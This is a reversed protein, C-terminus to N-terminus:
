IFVFDQFILFLFIASNDIKKLYSPQFFEIVPYFLFKLYIKFHSFSRLFRFILLTFHGSFCVFLLLLLAQFFFLDLYVILFLSSLSNISINNVKEMLYIIESRSYVICLLYYYQPWIYINGSELNPIFNEYRDQLLISRLRM